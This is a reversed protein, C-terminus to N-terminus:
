VLQIKSEKGRLANNAIEVLTKSVSSQCAELFDRTEEKPWLHAVAAIYVRPTLKQGENETYRTIGSVIRRIDEVPPVIKKFLVGACAGSILLENGKHISEYLFSLNLDGGNELVFIAFGLEKYLISSEYERDVLSKLTPVADLCNSSAITKILQCQTTWAKPKEIEKKLAQLLYACYGQHKEKAITEAAKRIRPSSDSQLDEILEM